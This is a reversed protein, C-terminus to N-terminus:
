PAAWSSAPLMMAPMAACPRGQCRGAGPERAAELDEAAVTVATPLGAAVDVAFSPGSLVAAREPGFTDAIIATMSM